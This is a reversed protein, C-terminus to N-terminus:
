FNKIRARLEQKTICSKTHKKVNETAHIVRLNAPHAIIRPPISLTFGEYISFMHDLHYTRGRQRKKDLTDIHELYAKNSLWRTYRRYEYFDELTIGQQIRCKSFGIRKAESVSRIKWRNRLAYRRINAGTCGYMRGIEAFNFGDKEYLYKFDLLQDESYQNNSKIVWNDKRAIKAIGEPTYDYLKSIDAFTQGGLEYLDKMNKRQKASSKDRVSKVRVWGRQNGHTRVSEGSIGFLLGIERLTKNGAEVLRQMRKFESETFERTGYPLM